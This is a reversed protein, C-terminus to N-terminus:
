DLNDIEEWTMDRNDMSLFSNDNSDIEDWSPGNFIVHVQQHAPMIKKVQARIWAQQEKSYEGKAIIVIEMLSPYEYLEFDLGFSYLSQKIKDKTFCSSDIAERRCLMDRRKDLTLDDRVAGIVLERNQLGFSSATQVFCECLLEEIQTNLMDVIMKYVEIETNINNDQVKYLKTSELAKKMTQKSSRM